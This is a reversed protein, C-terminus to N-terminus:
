PSCQRKLDDLKTQLNISFWKQTKNAKVFLCQKLFKLHFVSVRKIICPRDQVKTSCSYGSVSSDSFSLDKLFM